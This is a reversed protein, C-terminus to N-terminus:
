RPYFIYCTYVLEGEGPNIAKESKITRSSTFYLMKGDTSIQPCYDHEPSNVQPGLNISKTWTGDISFAPTFSWTDLKSILGPEFIQPDTSDPPVVATILLCILLHLFM